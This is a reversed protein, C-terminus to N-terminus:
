GGVYVAIWSTCCSWVFELLFPECSDPFEPLDASAKIEERFGAFRLYPPRDPM